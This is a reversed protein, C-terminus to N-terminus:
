ELHSWRDDDCHVELEVGHKSLLFMGLSWQVNIHGHSSARIQIHQLFFAWIIKPVHVRISTQWISCSECLEREQFLFRWFPYMHDRPSQRDNLCSGSWIKHPRFHLCLQFSWTPPELPHPLATSSLFASVSVTEPFQLSFNLIWCYELLLAHMHRPPAHTWSVLDPIM